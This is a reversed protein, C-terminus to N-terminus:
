PLPNNWIRTIGFIESKEYELVLTPKTAKKFFFLVDSSSIFAKTKGEKFGKHPLTHFQELGTLGALV